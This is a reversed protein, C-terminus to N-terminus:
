NGAFAFKVAWGFAFDLLTIVIMVITVFALVVGTYNVLQRKYM